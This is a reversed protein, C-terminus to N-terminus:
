PLIIEKWAILGKWKSFDEGLYTILDYHKPGTQLCMVEGVQNEKPLDGAKVFHWENSKSYAFEAGEKACQYCKHWDGCRHHKPSNFSCHGYCMRVSCLNKNAIEEAEKDFDFM